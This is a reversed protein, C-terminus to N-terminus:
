LEKIGIVEFRSGAVFNSGSVPFVELSTIASTSFWHGVGNNTYGDSTENISGTVSQYYKRESNAYFPYKIEVFGFDDGDNGAAPVEGVTRNANGVLAVGAGWNLRTRVIRYNTETTDSNITIKIDDETVTVLDSQLQARVLLHTFTNPISSVSISSASSGLTTEYILHMNNWGNVQNWNTGDYLLQIYKHDEDLRVDAGTLTLINGSGNKVTVERSDNNARIWLLDGSSGGSITALDDQSADSQTDINHWSQSRTVADSALTLEVEADLNILGASLDTFSPNNGTLKGFHAVNNIWIGIGIDGPTLTVDGNGVGNIGAGDHIVSITDGDDPLAAFLLANTSAIYQSIDSDVSFSDVDDATGTQAALKVVQGDLTVVGGAITDTQLPTLIAGVETTGTM